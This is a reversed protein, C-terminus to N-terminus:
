FYQFKFKYLNPCPVSHSALPPLYAAIGMMRMYRVVRFSKGVNTKSALIRSQVTAFLNLRSSIPKTNIISLNNFIISLNPFGVSFNSHGNLFSSSIRSSQVSISVAQSYRSRPGEISASM